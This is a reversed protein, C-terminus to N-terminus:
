GFPLLMRRRVGTPDLRRFGFRAYFGCLRDDKPDVALFAGGAQGRQARALDSARAVLASGIDQGQRAAHVGMRGLLYGGVQPYPGAALSPLVSVLADLRLSMPSLTFFGVVTQDPEVALHVTALGQAQEALALVHLYRDIDAHGTVCKKVLHAATLVEIKM